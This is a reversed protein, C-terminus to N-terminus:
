LNANNKMIQIHKFSVECILLIICTPMMSLILVFVSVVKNIGLSEAEPSDCHDMENHPKSQTELKHLLGSEYM